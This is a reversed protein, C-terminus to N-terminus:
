LRRTKKAIDLISCDVPTKAALTPATDGYFLWPQRESALKLARYDVFGHSDRMVELEKGVQLEERCRFGRTIDLLVRTGGDPTVSLGRVIGAVKTGIIQVKDDIRFRIVKQETDLDIECPSYNRRPQRVESVIGAVIGGARQAQERMLADSELAAVEAKEIGVEMEALLTALKEPLRAPFYGHTLANSMRKTSDETLSDLDGTPLGLSFFANRAQNLIEWERLVWRSLISQIESALVARRRGTVGKIEKRLRDIRDDMLCGPANPLVGSVPLRIRQRSEVLPDSVSADLWALLADLHGEEIPSLGTVVHCRLLASADVVVQQGPYTAEHALIRCIKGMEVIETPAEPNRWYRHGLVDLAKLTESHPIWVRPVGGAALAREFEHIMFRAFPLLDAVDRGIPDLRAVVGPSAGVPGYAIAQIQEETVIKITAIGISVEPDAALTSSARIPIAQKKHRALIRSLTDDLSNM